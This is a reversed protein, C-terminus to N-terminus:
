VPVLERTPIAVPQGIFPPIDGNITEAETTPVDHPRIRMAM